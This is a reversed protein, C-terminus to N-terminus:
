TIICASVHSPLCTCHSISMITACCVCDTRLYRETECQFCEHNAILCQSWECMASIRKVCEDCIYHYQWKFYICEPKLAPAHANGQGLPHCVDLMCCENKFVPLCSAYTESYLCYDCKHDCEHDCELCRLHPTDPMCYVYECDTPLYLAITHSHNNHLLLLTHHESTNLIMKILVQSAAKLPQNTLGSHEQQPNMYLTNHPLGNKCQTPQFSMKIRKLHLNLGHHWIQTPTSSSRKATTHLSTSWWTKPGRRNLKGNRKLNGVNISSLASSPM